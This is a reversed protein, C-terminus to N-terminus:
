INNKKKNLVFVATAGAAIVAFLAIAFADEIVGTAPDGGGGSGGGTQLTANANLWTRLDEFNTGGAVADTGGSINITRYAADNWHLLGGLGRNYAVGDESNGQNWYIIGDMVDNGTGVSLADFSLNKSSFNIEFRYENIIGVDEDIVWTTGALTSGDFDSTAYVSGNPKAFSMIGVAALVLMVAALLISLLKRNTKTEM